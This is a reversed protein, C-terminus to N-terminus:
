GAPLGDSGNLHRVPGPEPPFHQGEGPGAVQHGDAVHVRAVPGRVEGAARAEAVRQQAHDQDRVQHRDQQLRERRPEADDGPAVERLGAAVSSAPRDGDHEPHEALDGDGGAVERLHMPEAMASLRSKPMGSTQPTQMVASSTSRRREVQLVVAEAVDLREDDRQDDTM